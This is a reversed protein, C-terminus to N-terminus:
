YLIWTRHHHENGFYSGLSNRWQIYEMEAFHLCNLNKPTGNRQEASRLCITSDFRISDSDGFRAWLGIEIAMVFTYVSLTDVNYGPSFQPILLEYQNVM